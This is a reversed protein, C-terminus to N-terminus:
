VGFQQLHHDLHKWSLQDWEEVTLKGFFPHPDKSLIAPGGTQFKKVLAILQEKEKVFERSDAILFTKDTPLNRKMPKGSLLQKKALRGFLKGVFSQTGKAEGYAVKLPQQCHALMQAVNMRGWLPKMDVDLRNIRDIIEQSDVPNFLSKM